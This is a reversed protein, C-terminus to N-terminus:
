SVKLILGVNELQLQNEGQREHGSVVAFRKLAGILFKTPFRCFKLINWQQMCVNPNM